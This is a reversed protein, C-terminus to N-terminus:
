IHILSLYLPRKAKLLNSITRHVIDVNDLGTPLVTLRRVDSLGPIKKRAVTIPVFLVEDFFADDPEGLLGVVQFGIGGVYLIKGLPSTTDGFLIERIGDGIVCVNRLARVDLDNIGRGERIPLYTAFAFFHSDVGAIRLEPYEKGQYTAQFKVEAPWWSFVSPAVVKTGPVRRIDNLDEESFRRPDDPCDEYELPLNVRILTAGGLVALNNGISQQVLDGVSMVVILATTGLIGGILPSAYRRRMRFLQRFSILTVDSIRM